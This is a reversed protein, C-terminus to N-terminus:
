ESVDSDENSEEVTETNETEESSSENSEKDKTSETLYDYKGGQYIVDPQFTEEESGDESTPEVYTDVESEYCKCLFVREASDVFIFDRHVMYLKSNHVIQSTGKDYTQLEYTTNAIDEWRNKNELVFKLGLNRGDQTEKKTMFLAKYAYPIPEAM